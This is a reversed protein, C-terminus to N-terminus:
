SNETCDVFCYGVKVKKRLKLKVVESRKANDKSVLWCTSSHLKVMQATMEKCLIGGKKVACLLDAKALM